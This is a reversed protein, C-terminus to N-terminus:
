AQSTDVHHLGRSMNTVAHQLVQFNYVIFGCFRFDEMFAVGVLFIHM